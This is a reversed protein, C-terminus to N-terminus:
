WHSIPKWGSVGVDFTHFLIVIFFNPHQSLFSSLKKQTRYKRKWILSMIRRWMSLIRCCQSYRLFKGKLSKLLLKKGITLKLQSSVVTMFRTKNESPTLIFFDVKLFCTHGTPIWNASKGGFNRIARIFITKAARNTPAVCGSQVCNTGDILASITEPISISILSCTIYFTNKLVLNSM